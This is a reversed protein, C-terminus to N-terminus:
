RGKDIPLRIINGDVFDNTGLAVTSIGMFTPIAVDEIYSFFGAVTTDPIDLTIRM